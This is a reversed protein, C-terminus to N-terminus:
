TRHLQQGHLHLQLIQLPLVKHQGPLGVNQPWDRNSHQGADGTAPCLFSFFSFLSTLFHLFHHTVNVQGLYYKTVTSEMPM